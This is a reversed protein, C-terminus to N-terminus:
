IEKKQRDSFEIRVAGKGYLACDLECALCEVCWGSQTKVDARAIVPVGNAIRLVPDMTSSVCHRVCAQTMCELCANRDITVTGGSFLEFKLKSIKEARPRKM